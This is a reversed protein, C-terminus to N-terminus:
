AITVKNIANIWKGRRGKLFAWMWVDVKQGMVRSLNRISFFIGTDQIWLDCQFLPLCFYASRVVLDAKYITLTLIEYLSKFGLILLNNEIFHCCSQFSLICLLSKRIFDICPSHVGTNLFSCAVIDRYCLPWVLSICEKINLCSSCGTYLM